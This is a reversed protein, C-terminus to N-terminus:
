KSKNARNRANILAIEKDNKMNDYAMKIEKEKISKQTALKERELQTKLSLEYKKQADKAASDRDKQYIKELEIPDPIGNNDQDLDEMYRYASITAVQLKTQADTDIKYRELNLKEYELQLKQEELQALMQAQQAQMQQQQKQLEETRRATEEEAHKLIRAGESISDAKYFSVLQSISATGSQLAMQFLKDINAMLVNDENSNSVLVDFSGTEIAKMEEDTLLVSTFDDTILALKKPNKRLINLQINLCKQLHREKFSDNLAFWKETNNSSTTIAREVNGVLENQNIAGQRQDTVGSVISMTNRIDAMVETVMKLAGGQNSQLRNGIVTNMQGASITGKSTIIESAPDLPLTGTLVIMNIFEHITLGDPIMSTPFQLVEPMLLNILHQRKFDAINYLYDYPKLIDMLGQARSSNTNYLQLTFPPQQKCIDELSTSLYPIPEAGIIIDVGIKYGRWWEDIVIEKELEEGLDKRIKYQTPEFRTQAIGLEDTYKVVKIKRKSKWYVRLLRVNGKSDFTASYSLGDSEYADVDRGIAATLSDSPILLEGINGINPYTPLMNGQGGIRFEELRKVQDLTLKDYFMDILSSPMHYSVEILAEVGHEDTAYADMLAFIKTPDGKRNNFEGNLDEAFMWQEGCILGDEFARNFADKLRYKKYTYKLIKNCGTEALDYFPSNIYEMMKQIKAQAVEEEDTNQYIQTLKNIIDNTKKQETFKLGSQDSASRIVRFSFKRRIHEGILTDIKSNGIGKHEMKAPFKDPDVGVPLCHKLVDKTDLVGRKLNYNIQKNLYTQRVQRNEYLILAEFSNVCGEQWLKTKKVNDSVLQSPITIINNPSSM